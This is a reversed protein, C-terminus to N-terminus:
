RVGNGSNDSNHKSAPLLCLRVCFGDINYLTAQSDPARRFARSKRPQSLDGARWGSRTEPIYRPLRLNEGPVRAVM